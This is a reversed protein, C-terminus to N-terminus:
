RIGKDAQPVVESDHFLIVLRLSLRVLLNGSRADTDLIQGLMDVSRPQPLVEAGSAFDCVGLDLELLARCM